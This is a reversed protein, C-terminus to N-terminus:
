RDDGSGKIMDRMKRDALKEINAEAVETLSFGLNDALLAVHWLIDGLEYMLKRRAFDSLRDGEGDPEWTGYQDDGRYFRKMVGAAEGAEEVLGFMFHNLDDNVAFLRAERQYENLNM